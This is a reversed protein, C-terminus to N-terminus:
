VDGGEEENGNGERDRIGVLVLLFFCNIILKKFQFSYHMVSNKSDWAM